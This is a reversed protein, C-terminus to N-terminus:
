KLNNSSSSFSDSFQSNISNALTRLKCLDISERDTQRIYNFLVKWRNYAISKNYHYLPFVDLYKIIIPVALFTDTLFRFNAGDQRPIVRGVDFNRQILNLIDVEDKQDIIFRLRVRTYNNDTRKQVIANFCGEAAILGSLWGSKTLNQIKLPKSSLDIGYFSQAWLNFRATTKNMLLNNSFILILFELHDRKTVIYRSYNGYNSVTGFGLTKKIFHLVRIDKQNIIFFLRNKSVIFSGDGETFGVFWELFGQSPKQTLTLKSKSLLEYYNKFNFTTERTTESSGKQISTLM